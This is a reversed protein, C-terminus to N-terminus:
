AKKLRVNGGDRRERFDDYGIDDSEGSFREAEWGCGRKAGGLGFSPRERKAKAIITNSTKM